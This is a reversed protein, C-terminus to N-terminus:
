CVKPNLGPSVHNAIMCREHCGMMDMVTLYPPPPVAAPRDSEWPVCDRVVGLCAHDMRACTALFAYGLSIMTVRIQLPFYGPVPPQEPRLRHMETSFIVDWHSQINGTQRLSETKAVEGRREDHLSWPWPTPSGRSWVSRSSEPIDESIESVELPLHPLAACHMRTNAPQLKLGLVFLCFNPYKRLIIKYPVILVFPYLFLKCM